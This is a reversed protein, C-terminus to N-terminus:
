PVTPPRVFSAIEREIKPLLRHPHSGPIWICHGSLGEYANRSYEFLGIENGCSRYARRFPRASDIPVVDDQCEHTLLIKPGGPRVLNMVSMSDFDAAAPQRGGFLARYRDPHAKADPGPDAIGSISVIGAVQEAPLTLGTWLALHGGASGGVIWLKKPRFGCRAAFAEGLAFRAAAVCDDGCAPWPTKESALRYDINFVAFGLDKVFFDAIGEVAQRDMATWGGGHILLTLQTQGDVKEPLHLDGSCVAGREPAYSVDAIVRAECAGLLPVLSLIAVVAQKKWRIRNYM